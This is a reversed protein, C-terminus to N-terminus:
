GGAFPLKVQRNGFKLASYLTVGCVKARAQFPRSQFGPVSVDAMGQLKQLFGDVQMRLGSLSAGFETRDQPYLAVKGLGEMFELLSYVQLRLHGLSMIFQSENIPM